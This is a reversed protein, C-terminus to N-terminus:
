CSVDGEPDLVQLHGGHTDEDGARGSEDAGGDYALKEARSMVDDPECSGVFRGGRDLAETGLDMAAVQGVEVAEPIGRARGVAHEMEPEDVVEVLEEVGHADVEVGDLGQAGREVPRIA